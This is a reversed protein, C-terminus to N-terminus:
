WFAAPFSHFLFSSSLITYCEDAEETSRQVRSPNCADPLNRPRRRFAVNSRMALQKEEQHALSLASLAPELWVRSCQSGKKEACRRVAERRFHGSSSRSIRINWRTVNYQRLHDRQDRTINCQSSSCCFQFLTGRAHEHWTRPINRRTVHKQCM